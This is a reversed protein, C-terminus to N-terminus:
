ILGRAQLEFYCKAMARVDPEARHAGKFKEGFLEEHLASLSLRYGKIFETAEVTCLLEPWHLKPLQLRACECDVIFRDYALNHAVIRDVSEFVDVIRPIIDSAPPAGKLLEEDIGTIETIKDPIIRRKAFLNTSAELEEGKENMLLYFLELTMPQKELPLAINKQLGDTETDFFIIKM